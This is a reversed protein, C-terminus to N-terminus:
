RLYPNPGRGALYSDWAIDFQSRTRDSSTTTAHYASQPKWTGKKRMRDEATLVPEGVHGRDTRRNSGCTGLRGLKKGRAVQAQLRKKVEPYLNKRRHRKGGRAM